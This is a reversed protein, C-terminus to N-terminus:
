CTSSARCPPSSGDRVDLVAQGLLDRHRRPRGAAHVARLGHHHLGDEPGAAQQHLHGRDREGQDEPPHGRDAPRLAHARPPGGAGRLLERGTKAATGIIGEGIAIATVPAEQGESTELELQGTKESVMFLHFAEAGILNIVIEQVIRIVEKYDLTSHLQYSAVYLNALNNNQEEIEIYRDAFEKNEEEVKRYRAEVESLREELERIRRTLDSVTTTPASRRRAAAPRSTRSRSASGSTRRSCSRRSNRPRRPVHRLVGPEEELPRGANMLGSGVGTRSSPTSRASCSPTRSPSAPRTSSSRAPRRPTGPAAGSEPNDGYLVAITERHTVLPLLAADGGKLRGISDMLDTTLASAPLPGTFGRRASVVDSFISREALPIVLERALLNLRRGPRHPRVRRPRAARREQGPLPGVARLVGPGGEHRPGRDADADQPGGCSTWGSGCCRWSARCSTPPRRRRAAARARSPARAGRGARRRAPAPAAPRPPRAPAPPRRGRDQAAFAKLDAEFQEPDLKSLGPKFVFSKIGMEKARTQVPTSLSETM